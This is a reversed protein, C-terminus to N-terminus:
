GPLNSICTPLTFQSVYYFFLFEQAKCEKHKELIEDLNLHFERVSLYMTKYNGMYFNDLGYFCGDKLFINKTFNSSKEKSFFALYEEKLASFKNDLFDFRFNLIAEEKNIVLSAMEDLIRFQGCWYRKWGLIPMLSSCVNGEIKGVLCCLTEDDIIILKVTHSLDKLYDYIIEKTIPTLDESITRWSLSSATISWTHIFLDFNNINYLEKLFFYLDDTQFSQRIHGRLVIIM